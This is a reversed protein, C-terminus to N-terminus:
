GSSSRRCIHSRRSVGGTAQNGRTAEPAPATAQAAGRGAGSRWQQKNQHRCHVRGGKLLCTWYGISAARVAAYRVAVAARAKPEHIRCAARFAELRCEVMREISESTLDDILSLRHTGAPRIYIHAGKANEHRLWKIAEEIEIAGQGERLIMEGADRKIGLDFHECCMARLQVRVLREVIAASKQSRQQREAQTMAADPACRVPPM